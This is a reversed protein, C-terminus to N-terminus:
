FTIESIIKTEFYEETFIDKIYKINCNDLKTNIGNLYIIKTNKEILNNVMKIFNDIKSIGRGLIINYKEKIDESRCCITKVNDLGLEQIIINVSNIKKHISDILTFNIDKFYIALPIGPFGGGTGVDIIKDKCNFNYYKAISLSHLIHHLYLYDIDKRSILNINNNITRYIEGAKKYLEIQKDDLNNFYKLIINIDDNM